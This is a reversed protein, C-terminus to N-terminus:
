ECIKRGQLRLRYMGGFSRNKCCGCLAVNWFVVIKVTARHEDRLTLSWNACEFPIVPLVVIKYIRIKFNQLASSFASHETRFPLLISSKGRTCREKRFAYYCIISKPNFAFNISNNVLSRLVFYRRQPAQSVYIGGEDALPSGWSAPSTAKGTYRHKPFSQTLPQYPM